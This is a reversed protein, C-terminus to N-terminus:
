LAICCPSLLMQTLQASNIAPPDGTRNEYAYMLNSISSDHVPDFKSGLLVHGVEHATSYQAAAAGLICAPRGPLHGGCGLISTTAFQNVYYVVIDTASVPPGLRQVEAYDGDKIEWECSGSVSALRTAEDEPLGLSMGSGFDVRIGHPAYARQTSRYIRDFPVATLSLSRFHLRVRYTYDQPLDFLPIYIVGPNDRSDFRYNMGDSTQSCGVYNHLLWNVMRAKKQFDREAKVVPFNFEILGWVSLSNAKAISDWTDGTQVRYRDGGTPPFTIIGNPKEELM